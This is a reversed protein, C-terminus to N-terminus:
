DGTGTGVITYADGTDNRVVSAYAYVPNISSRVRITAGEARTLGTFDFIDNIVYVQWPGVSLQVSGHIEGQADFWAISFFTTENAPNAIGVNTRSGPSADLGHLWSTTTLSDPPLAAIAQGFQGAPNGVNYIRAHAAIKAEDNSSGLWLTGVIQQIGFTEALLDRFTVTQMPALVFKHQVPTLGNPLLWMSVETDHHESRNTVILDTQWQTSNAGPTRGVMPVFVEAGAFDMAAASGAMMLIVLGSLVSRM